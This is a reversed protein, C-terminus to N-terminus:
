SVMRDAGDNVALLPPRYEGLDSKPVGPNCPFHSMLNLPGNTAVMAQFPWGRDLWQAVPELVDKFANKPPFDQHYTYRVHSYAVVMFQIYGVKIKWKNADPNGSLISQFFSGAEREEMVEPDDISVLTIMTSGLATRLYEFDFDPMGRTSETIVMPRGLRMSDNFIRWIDRDDDSLGESTSGVLPKQLKIVTRKKTPTVDPVPRHYVM